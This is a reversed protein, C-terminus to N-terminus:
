SNIRLSELQEFYYYNSWWKNAIDFGKQGRPDALKIFSLLGSEIGGFRNRNINENFTSFVLPFTRPDDAGVTAALSVASTRINLPKTKDQGLKLGLDLARKDGLIALGNIGAM